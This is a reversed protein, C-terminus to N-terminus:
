CEYLNWILLEVGLLLLCEIKLLNRGHQSIKATQSNRQAVIPVSGVEDHLHMVAYSKMLYLKLATQREVYPIEPLM